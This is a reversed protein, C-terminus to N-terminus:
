SPADLEYWAVSEEADPLVPVQSDVVGCWVVGLASDSAFLVFNTQLDIPMNGLLTVLSVGHLLFGLLTLYAAGGSVMLLLVGALAVPLRISRRPHSNM